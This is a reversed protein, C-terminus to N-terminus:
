DRLAKNQNWVPLQKLANVAASLKAMDEAHAIDRMRTLLEEKCNSVNNAAKAVWAGLGTRQPLRVPVGHMRLYLSTFM